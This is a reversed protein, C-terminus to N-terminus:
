LKEEWWKFLLPPLDASNQPAYLEPKGNTLVGAFVKQTQKNIAFAAESKGCMHQACGTAFFWEDTLQPPSIVQFNDRFTRYGSGLISRFRQQILDNELLDSVSKTADSVEAVELKVQNQPIQQATVIPAVKASIDPIESLRQQINKLNGQMGYAKSQIASSVVSWSGVFIVTVLIGIVLYNALGYKRRKFLYAPYCIIWLFVVLFFWAAASYTGEDRNSEMGVKKAESAAVTATILVTALM